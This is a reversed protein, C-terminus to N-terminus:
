LTRLGPQRVVRFPLSSDDFGQRDTPTAVTVHIGDRQASGSVGALGRALLLAYTEAGGIRPAFSHSYVLVKM